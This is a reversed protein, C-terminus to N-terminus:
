PGAISCSYWYLSASSAKGLLKHMACLIPSEAYSIVNMM